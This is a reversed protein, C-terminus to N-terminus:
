MMDEVILLLERLANITTQTDAPSTLVLEDVTPTGDSVVILRTAAIM